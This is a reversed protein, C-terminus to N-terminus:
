NGRRWHVLETVVSLERKLKKHKYSLRFVVSGAHTFDQCGGGGDLVSVKFAKVAREIAHGSSHFCDGVGDVRLAEGYGRTFGVKTDRGIEAGGIEEEVAVEGIGTDARQPIRLGRGEVFGHRQQWYGALTDNKLPVPELDWHNEVAWEVGIPVLGPRRDEYTAAVVGGLFIRQVRYAELDEGTAPIKDRVLAGTLRGHAAVLIQAEDWLPLLDDGRDDVVEARPRVDVHRTEAEHAKGKAGGEGGAGGSMVVAEGGEKGDVAHVAQLSGKFGVEGWRQYRQEFAAVRRGEVSNHILDPAVRGARRTDAPEDILTEPGEARRGREVPEGLQSGVRQVSYEILDRARHEDTIALVIEIDQPLSWDHRVSQPIQRRQIPEVIREPGTLM